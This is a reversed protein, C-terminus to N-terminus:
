PWQSSREALACKRVYKAVAVLGADRWAWPHKDPHAREAQQRTVEYIAALGNIPPIGGPEVLGCSCPLARVSECEVTHAIM